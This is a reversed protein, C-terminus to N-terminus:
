GVRRPLRFIPRLYASTRPWGAFVDQAIVREVRYGHQRVIHERQKERWLVDDDLGVATYKVRGDVELVLRFRPWCLDVRYGGIWCQLEPPPFGDDHLRLRTVSELPSEALPDALALVERAQRVGPWGVARVLASEITAPTAMGLRVAADAAMIADFRDHRALDVLTRSPTAVAVGYWSTIEDNALWGTFCGAAAPRVRGLSEDRVTLRPVDPVGMLPLGHLVAGSRGSIADAPRRRGAATAALAHAHRPTPAATPAVYGHGAITWTGHHTRTRAAARTIGLGALEAATLVFGRTAALELVPDPPMREALGRWHDPWRPEAVIGRSDPM